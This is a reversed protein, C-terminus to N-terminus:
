NAEKMRERRDQVQQKFAEAAQDLTKRFAKRLENDPLKLDVSNAGVVAAAMLLASIAFPADRNELTRVLAHVHLGLMQEQVAPDMPHEDEM